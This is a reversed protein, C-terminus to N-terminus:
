PVEVPLMFDPDPRLFSDHQGSMGQTSIENSLTDKVIRFVEQDPCSMLQQYAAIRIEM